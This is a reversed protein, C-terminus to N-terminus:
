PRGEGATAAGRLAPRGSGAGPGHGADDWYIPEPMLAPTQHTAYVACYGGVNAIAVPEGPDFLPLPKLRGLIRKSSSFDALVGAPAVVTPRGSAYLGEVTIRLGTTPGVDLHLAAGGHCATSRYVVHAVAHAASAVLARGPEALLRVGYDRAFGRLREAGAAFGGTLREGCLEPILEPYLFSGGLDVAEIWPFATEILHGCIALGLPHVGHFALGHLRRERQEVPAIAQRVYALTAGYDVHVEAAEALNVRLYLRAEPARTALLDIMELTEVAFDRVGHLYLRDAYSPSLCPNGWVIREPAVGLEMLQEVDGPAAAQFGCGEAALVALLRPDGNAKMSYHLPVDEGLYGRLLGVTWRLKALDHLLLPRGDGRAEELLAALRPEVRRALRGPDGFPILAPDGM